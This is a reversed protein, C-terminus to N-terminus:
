CDIDIKLLNKHLNIAEKDTSKRENRSNQTDTMKTMLGEKELSEARVGTLEALRLLELKRFKKL